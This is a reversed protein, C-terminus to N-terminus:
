QESPQEIDLADDRDMRWRARTVLGDSFTWAAYDIQEIEVGSSKGTGSQREKVLITDGVQEFDLAEIRFNDWQELFQRMFPAIEDRGAIPIGDLMPEYSADPAFLEMGARTNGQALEAYVARLREINEEGM